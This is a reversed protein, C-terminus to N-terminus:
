DDHKSLSNLKSKRAQSNSKKQFLNSTEIQNLQKSFFNKHNKSKWKGSVFFRLAFFWQIEIVKITHILSRRRRQIAFPKKTQNFYLCFYFQDSKFANMHHYGLHYTSQMGGHMTCTHTHARNHSLLEAHLFFLPNNQASHLHHHYLDKHQIEMFECTIRMICVLPTGALKWERAVFM